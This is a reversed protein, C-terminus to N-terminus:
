DELGRSARLIWVLDNCLARHRCFSPQSHRAFFESNQCPHGNNDVVVGFDVIDKISTTVELKEADRRKQNYKVFSKKDM